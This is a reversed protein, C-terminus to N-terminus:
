PDPTRTSRLWPSTGAALLALFAIAYGLKWGISVGPEFSAMFGFVSWAALPLCVLSLLLKAAKPLRQRFVIASVTVAIGILLLSSVVVSLESM